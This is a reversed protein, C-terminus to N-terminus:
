GQFVVSDLCFTRGRDQDNSFRTQSRYQRWRTERQSSRSGAKRRHNKRSACEALSRKLQQKGPVNEIVRTQKKQGWEKSIGVRHYVVRSCPQTQRRHAVWHPLRTSRPKRARAACWTPGAAQNTCSLPLLLGLRTRATSNPSYSPASPWGERSWGSSCPRARLYCLRSRSKLWVRRPLSLCIFVFIYYTRMFTWGLVSSITRPRDMISTPLMLRRAFSWFITYVEYPCASMFTTM